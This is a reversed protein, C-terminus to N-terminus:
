ARAQWDASKKLAAVAEAEFGDYLYERLDSQGAYIRRFTEKGYKKILHLIYAGSYDYGGHNCFFEEDLLDTLRPPNGADLFPVNIQESLAVAIGEALPLSVSEAQALNNMAMHITEHRAVKMMQEPTRDNAARPSLICIRRKQLDCNGVMWDKYNEGSIGALTRFTHADPCLYFDFKTIAMGLDFFDATREYTGDIESALAPAFQADDHSYFFDAYKTRISQM